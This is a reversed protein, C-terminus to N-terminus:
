RTTRVANNSTPKSCERPDYLMAPLYLLLPSDMPEAPEIRKFGRHLYFTLLTPEGLKKGPGYPKVYCFVPWAYRDAYRLLSEVAMTGFGANRLAPTTYVDTLYVGDKPMRDNFRRLTAQAWANGRSFRSELLIQGARNLQAATPPKM